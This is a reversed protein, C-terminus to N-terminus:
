CASAGRARAATAASLEHRRDRHPRGDAPDAGGADAHDHDQRRREARAAHRDRRRQRVALCRARGRSDDFTRSLRDAILLRDRGNLGASGIASRVTSQIAQFFLDAIKAYGAETPHLGDVGIYRKVDPLLAAYIDVLVAGELAALDRMRNNYDDLLVQSITRNGGPRPPAHTAIFVRMGRQRAEAVMIRMESAATSAAGDLGGPIDNHGKWLLM